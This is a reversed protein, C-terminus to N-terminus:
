FSCGLMGGAIFVGGTAWLTLTTDVNAGAFTM